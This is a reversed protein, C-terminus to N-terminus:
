IRPEGYKLVQTDFCRFVDGFHKLASVLSNWALQRDRNTANLGAVVLSHEERSGGCRSWGHM